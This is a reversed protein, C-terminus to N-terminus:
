GLIMAIVFLILFGTEKEKLSAEKDSISFSKLLRLVFFAVQNLFTVGFIKFALTSLQESVNVSSNLLVNNVDLKRVSNFIASM